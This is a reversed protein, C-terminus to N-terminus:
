ISSLMIGRTRGSTSRKIKQRLCAVLYFESHGYVLNFKKLLILVKTTLEPMEPVIHYIILENLM